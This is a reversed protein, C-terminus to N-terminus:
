GGKVKRRPSPTKPEVLGLMELLDLCDEGDVARRAVARKGLAVQDPTLDFMGGPPNIEGRQGKGM